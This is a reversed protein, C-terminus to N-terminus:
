NRLPKGTELMHRIRAVTLGEALLARFARREHDLADEFSTSKALVAKAEESVTVDHDTLEGKKRQEALMADIMGTVPGQVSAWEARPRAVTALAAAKSDAMLRDPHFCVVDTPRLFGLKRAEPANAALTGTALMRAVEVLAKASEQHRLRMLATGGGGPILGVRVEPLGIQSEAAAVLTSCSAAMEFGGGLCYGSVAAVSPWEGLLLGLRQLDGLGKDLRDWDATEACEVLFTLDFGASFAKALSTLVVPGRPNSGLWDLLSGVLATTFVGMKTTTTLLRVGDGMDRVQFGEHESVVPFDRATRYQPEAKRPVMAGDWGRMTGDLFWPSAQGGVMDLMAFPGAEWGFGWQMVRDFDEPGHSIRPGLYDAYELAPLLYRRLFEGVDDSLKLGEAIREPLPRRSLEAISPFDPKLTMRYGHTGLDFAFLEKNERRYYGHGAKNGIWGKEMLFAMSAPTQLVDTHPDDACRDRLNGAIDAMIDLGVLDNLRFSGSRPRGLFPGTIEDVDEIRLGLREAVHVAHFMCWMGYRNAIFGPTDFAPVVRRAVSGELFETMAAVVQPDTDATPILELLKLYRPPNFFHTGIFRRRFDPGRGQALLSIELGSTNTSVFAQPPLMPELHALLAQKADLKEVIAECVWDADQVHTRLMDVSGLRVIDANEPVYFHPPKLQRAREFAAAASDADVDLLSVQFGLNALHAAIGSGMTGAGIVCVKKQAGQM